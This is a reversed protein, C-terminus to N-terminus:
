PPDGLASIVAAQLARHQEVNRARDTRAEILKLGRMEGLAARLSAADTCRAFDAGCLQAAGSLDLGHPTAFLEEFREPHQAIPLFHFIGGGDNNVVLVCLPIRLRAAAVLGSLDHLLALDGVLALTPRQTAAAAGAATSIAGDIGNLGRNALVRVGARPEPAFADLDRVPMSSAVFLIGGAPVALAAERAVLPEGWPADSFARELAERARREAEAFAARLPGEGPRAVASIARCIAPAHGQLIAAARHSADMPEGREHLVVSYPASDAYAQLIKSSLGGGIRVVAEPALFNAWRDGRLILDAHKVFHQQSAADAIVPYGLIRALEEVAPGLDDQADRLGCIIVGRARASLERAVPRVDPVGRVRLIRAAAFHEPAHSVEPASEGEPALPERFPANLHVPGDAAMEVARAAIARLHRLSDAEPLGVDAFFRVHRGFLHQQDMTQPAGWGHLEPPRDATLVILPVGAAEAELVAPYFHAGASGSTALVLAPRGTAKAAGLAFFAASREDVVTHVPLAEACALALPGSRSGPCVVAERVGCRVLEDILARAWAFNM